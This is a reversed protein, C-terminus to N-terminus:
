SPPQKWALMSGIARQYRCGDASVTGEERVVVRSEMEITVSVQPSDAGPTARRSNIM